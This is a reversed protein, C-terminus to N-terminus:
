EEANIIEMDLDFWEQQAEPPIVRFEAESYQFSIGTLVRGVDVIASFPDIKAKKRAEANAGYPNFGAPIKPFKRLFKVYNEIATAKTM